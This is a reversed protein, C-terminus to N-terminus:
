SVSAVYQIKTFYSTQNGSAFHTYLVKWFFMFLCVFFLRVFLVSQLPHLRIVSKAEKGTRTRM